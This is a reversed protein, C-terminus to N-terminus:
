EVVLELEIDAADLLDAIEGAEVALAALERYAKTRRSAQKGAEATYFRQATELHRVIASKLVTKKTM